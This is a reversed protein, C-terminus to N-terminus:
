QAAPWFASGRFRTCARSPSASRAPGTPPNLAQVFASAAALQYSAGAGAIAWLLLVAWLLPSWACGILPACSLVALWGMMAIRTSPAAVRSLLFAGVAMGMPMAAMLLGVTLPGGHLSRAYPAALGKLVIYFGALWGFLLLTLLVRNGFAVRVGDASVSWLSPRVAQGRRPSLRIKVWTLVILAL